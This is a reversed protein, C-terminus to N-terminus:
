KLINKIRTVERDLVDGDYDGSHATTGEYCAGKQDLHINAELGEPKQKLYVHFRPFDLSALRRIYSKGFRDPHYGLSRFLALPNVAKTSIIFKM